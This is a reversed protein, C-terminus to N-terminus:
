IETTDPGKYLSISMKERGPVSALVKSVELEHVGGVKRWLYFSGALIPNMRVPTVTLINKTDGRSSRRTRRTGNLWIKNM